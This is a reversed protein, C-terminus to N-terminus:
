SAARGHAVVAESSPSTKWWRRWLDDYPLRGQHLWDIDGLSRAQAAWYSNPRAMGALWGALSWWEKREVMGRIAVFNRAARRHIAVGSWAHQATASERLASKWRYWWIDVHVGGRVTIWPGQRLHYRLGARVASWFFFSDGGDRIRKYLGLDLYRDLAPRWVWFTGTWMPIALPGDRAPPGSELVYGRAIGARRPPELAASGPLEDVNTVLVLDHRAEGILHWVVAAFRFGWDPSPPVTVARIRGPNRACEEELEPYEGIDRDIGVVLEDIGGGVVAQVFDRLMRPEEGTGRYPLVASRPRVTAAAAAAAAPAAGNAQRRATGERGRATRGDGSAGSSKPSNGAGAHGGHEAGGCAPQTEAM